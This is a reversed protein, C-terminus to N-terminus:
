RRFQNKLYTKESRWLPFLLLALTPPVVLYALDAAVQSEMGGQTLQIQLWSRGTLAALTAVLVAVLTTRSITHSAM